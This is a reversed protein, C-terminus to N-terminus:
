NFSDLNVVLFTKDCQGRVREIKILQGSTELTKKKKEKSLKKM